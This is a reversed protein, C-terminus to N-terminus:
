VLQDISCSKPDRDDRWRVVRTGHRI